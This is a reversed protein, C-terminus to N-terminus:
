NLKKISMFYNFEYFTDKKFAYKVDKELKFIDLDDTIMGVVMIFANIADIENAFECTISNAVVEYM